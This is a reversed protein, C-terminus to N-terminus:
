SGRLRLPASSRARMLMAGQLVTSGDRTSRLCAPAASWSRWWLRWVNARRPHSSARVTSPSLALRRTARSPLVTAAMDRASSPHAPTASSCDLSALVRSLQRSAAALWMALRVVLCRSIM